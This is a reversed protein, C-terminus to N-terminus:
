FFFSILSFLYYIFSFSVTSTSSDSAFFTCVDRNGFWLFICFFTEIQQAIGLHWLWKFVNMQDNNLAMMWSTTIGAQMTIAGIVYFFHSKQTNFIRTHDCISRLNKTITVNQQTIEFFHWESLLDTAILNAWEHFAVNNINSPPFFHKCELTFM